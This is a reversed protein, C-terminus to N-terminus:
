AHPMPIMDSRAGPAIALTLWFPYAVEPVLLPHGGLWTVIFAALGALVPGASRDFPQRPWLALVLVAVFSALGVLGLEGAIQAFNNHANQRPYISRLEPSSFEGSVRPYQGIGVGFVPHEELMRGTTELFMWRINVATSAATSRSYYMGLVGLATTVLLLIAVFQVIPRSRALALRGACLIVVLVVAVVATRSGTMWLATALTLGGATWKLRADRNQESMGLAIVAAMAFYSGAANLDRVHESWRQAMVFELVNGPIGTEALEMSAHWINFLAASIAGAMLAFLLRGAFAPEARSLRAAYLLVALGEVLLLANFIMTFRSYSALYGFTVYTLVDRAASAPLEADSHQALLQAVSSAAVIASFLLAASELRSAPFGRLEGLTWGRVLVGALFALVMAEAARVPSQLIGGAIQGLPTLAALVLLGNQPRFYAVLAVAVVLLRMGISASETWFISQAVLVIACTFLALLGRILHRLISELM